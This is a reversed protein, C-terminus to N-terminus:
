PQLKVRFVSNDNCGLVPTIRWKICFTGLSNVVLGVCINQLGKCRQDSDRQDHRRVRFTPRATFTNEPDQGSVDGRLNMKELARLDQGFGKICFWPHLGVTIILMMIVIRDTM